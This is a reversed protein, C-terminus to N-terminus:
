GELLVYVPVTCFLALCGNVQSYVCVHVRVRVRVRVCVRVRVRVRV